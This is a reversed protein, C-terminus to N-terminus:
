LWIPVSITGVTHYCPIVGYYTQNQRGLVNFSSGIKSSLLELQKIKRKNVRVKQLQRELIAM